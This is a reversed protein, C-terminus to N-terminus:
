IEEVVIVKKDVGIRSLQKEIAEMMPPPGCVYVNKCSSDIQTKLFSESIMGYAYKDTKEESLINIFNNGLLSEFENKLIIDGKTKNAFILKNGDVEMISKLYRFISIFPTIGAGGAIFAGKGRYTLAGFVDHLILEDEKKL